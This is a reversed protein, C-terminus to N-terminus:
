KKEYVSRNYDFQLESSNEIAEWDFLGLDILKNVANYSDCVVIYKTNILFEKLTIHYKEFQSRPNAGRHARNVPFIIEKVEPFLELLINKIEEDNYWGALVYYLKSRFTNLVRVEQGNFVCDDYSYSLDIKGKELNWFDDRLEKDSLEHGEKMIFLYESENDYYM